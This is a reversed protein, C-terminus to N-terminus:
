RALEDLLQLLAATDDSFLRVGEALKETAMLDAALATRFAAEDRVPPEADTVPGPHAPDLRRPMPRDSAALEALLAPAITLLDCGALAAIQDINRFSAGMVETAVGHQKYYRWIRQVAQVGPDADGLMAAADWANGARLRYWDTIRGVFPSILQVQAAACAQAQAFSFMLTLNCAIGEARLQRAAEIGEWTAAIKILVRERGVGAAAYRGILGRARAVTAATDHSLRADVETSVRGPIRRLIDCGFDVLLDDMREEASGSRAAAARPLHAYRPDRAAKLILSPNTTADRAPWQSLADLDASDVVVVTTASLADLAHM